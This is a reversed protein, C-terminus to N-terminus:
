LDLAAGARLIANARPTFAGGEGHLTLGPLLRLPAALGKRAQVIVRKAPRGGEVGPWLPFVTVAGAGPTLAALVADLRDARQILTVSGRPRAMALCFAVWDGLDGRCEVSARARAADPSPSSRGPELFPPNAMVHDFSGADLGPPPSMLDGRLFSLRQEFGNLAANEVALRVLGGDLELGSLRCGDVRHALCLAAAGVGAGVDLVHEGPAAPVAAALLVPDIAVRYGSAPQRLRVRGDLLSDDTVADDAM